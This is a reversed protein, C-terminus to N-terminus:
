GREGDGERLVRKEYLEAIKAKSYELVGTLIENHL